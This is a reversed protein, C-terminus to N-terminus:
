MFLHLASMPGNHTNDSVLFTCILALNQNTCEEEKKFLQFGGLSFKLLSHNSISSSFLTDLITDLAQCIWELSMTYELGFGNVSNNM